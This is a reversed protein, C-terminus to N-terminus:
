AGNALYAGLDLGAMQASERLSALVDSPLPIGHVQAATFRDWELEGPVLLRETGPATPAAHVEDILQDVRGPLGDGMVACDLALFAAGHGTPLAPDDGLWSRIQWTTAAGTLCGALSEILLALGFGKHAAAPTLVSHEPYSGPDDTPLGDEGLLWTAPIPEGRERAAYVKGGAVTAISMDLMLPPHKGAPVAYALPNSGTVATRSGPAAVSPIDNAMALGILGDRAALAAYYGAAGFHSSNRVGAYGVGAQRAKGIATTMAFVSTVMGLASDGDVVAWAPGEAVIGPRGGPQLGGARLRRLYGRLAKSGHTFVGWGDTTSLVEAGTDADPGSMGARAFADRCFARLQPLAITGAAAAPAGV